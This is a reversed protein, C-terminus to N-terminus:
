GTPGPARQGPLLRDHPANYHEVLAGRRIEHIESDRMMSLAVVLCFAADRMRSVLTTLARPDLGPHWPGTTGDARTVQALDDILGTTTPHGAELAQLVREQRLRGVRTDSSFASGRPDAQIFLRLLGWNVGERRAGFHDPAEPAHLPIRSAPDALWAELHPTITDRSFQRVRGHLREYRHFARLVDPAFTHM